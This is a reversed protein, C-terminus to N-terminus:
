EYKDKLKIAMQVCHAFYKVLQSAIIPLDNVYWYVGNNLRVPNIKTVKVLFDSPLTIGYRESLETTSLVARGEIIRIEKM